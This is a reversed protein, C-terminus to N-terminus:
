FFDALHKKLKKRATFVHWKVAEVSCELIEAVQKQPMKQISFMVLAQKQMDPLEDLAHAILNRMDAGTAQELPTPMNTDAPNRLRSAQYSDEDSNGADLSVMKRLSRSRRRNLAMNSLIRLLWSGFREPQSLTELRDYARLFADQTIEMADDRNNLLRYAVASARRQYRRVLEDFAAKEGSRVRFVLQGDTPVQATDVNEDTTGSM